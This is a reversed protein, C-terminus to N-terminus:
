LAGEKVDFRGRLRDGIVNFAFVTLFLAASPILTIHPASELESRGEAIMAGWTPTPPPAGLGIFSLSGEAVIVVAVIIFAYALTAPAVNPVIERWIIRGRRAGASVAATVYEHGAVQLTSARALRVFAPISVLALGITINVVTRGLVATLGLLLVLAPFALLADTLSTVVREFRGRLYGALVGLSSGVLMGLVVASVGVLLSVRAGLVLRALVDRGLADAGLWYDASPGASAAAYDNSFADKLPLWDATLSALLIVTLWGLALWFGPGWGGRKKPPAAAEPDLTAPTTTTEPQASM